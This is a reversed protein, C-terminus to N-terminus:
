WNNREKLNEIQAVHHRGHWSYVGATVRLSSVTKNVPHSFTRQWQEETLNDLTNVWRTHLAHLLTISINIPTNSVDPLEAWLHEEYPKVVPNDETLALKFRTYANMHSDALHHVVQAVTWGEPRYPTNLQDADLNQVTIEVLSPLYRIDNIFRRLLDDSVTSPVTCKGIPYKLQELDM